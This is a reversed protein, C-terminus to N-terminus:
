VVVAVLVVFCTFAGLQLVTSLSLSLSVLPPLSYLYLLLLLFAHLVWAAVNTAFPNSCQSEITCPVLIPKPAKRFSTKPPLNRLDYPLKNQYVLSLLYRFRPVSLPKMAPRRIIVSRLGTLAANPTQKASYIKLQHFSLHVALSSVRTEWIDTLFISVRHRTFKQMCLFKCARLLLFCHMSSVKM